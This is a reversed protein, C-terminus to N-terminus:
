WTDGLVLSMDLCKNKQEDSLGSREDFNEVDRLYCSYEKGDKDHIFVMSNYEQSILEGRMSM